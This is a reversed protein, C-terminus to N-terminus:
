SAEHQIKSNLEDVNRKVEQRRMLTINEFTKVIKSQFITIASQNRQIEVDFQGKIHTNWWNVGSIIADSHALKQMKFIYHAESINGKYNTENWPEYSCNLVRVYM